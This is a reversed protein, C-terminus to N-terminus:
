DLIEIVEPDKKKKRAHAFREREEEVRQKDLRECM